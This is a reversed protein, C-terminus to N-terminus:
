RELHCKISQIGPICHKFFWTSGLIGSMNQSLAMMIYLDPPGLTPLTAKRRFPGVGRTALAIAHCENFRTVCCGRQSHLPTHHAEHPFSDGDCGSPQIIPVRLQQEAPINISIYIIIWWIPPVIQGVTSDGDNAEHGGSECTEKYLCSYYLCLTQDHYIKYPGTVFVGRRKRCMFFSGHWIGM